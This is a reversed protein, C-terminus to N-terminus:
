VVEFPHVIEAKSIKVDPCVTQLFHYMDEIYIHEIGYHGADIIPLADDVQDIGTHHDIDGTIYIEAGKAHCDKVLSKGAGPCIGAITVEKDGDGFFRVSPIAFREKVFLACERVTM